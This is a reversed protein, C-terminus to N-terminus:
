KRTSRWVDGKRQGKRLIMDEQIRRAAYSGHKPKPTYEPVDPWAVEAYKFADWSDTRLDKMKEKPSRAAEQGAAWEEYVLQPWTELTYLCSECIQFLPDFDDEEIGAWYYNVLREQAVDDAHQGKAKAKRLWVGNDDFIQAKSVLGGDTNQDENWLSPDAWIDLTQEDGDGFLPHKKIEECFGKIGGMQNGPRAFEFIM